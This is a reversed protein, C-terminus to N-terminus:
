LLLFDTYRLNNAIAPDLKQHKEAVEILPKSPDIGVVNARLRALAQKM